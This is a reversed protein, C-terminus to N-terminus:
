RKVFESVFAEVFAEGVTGEGLEGHEMQAICKRVKARIEDLEAQQRELDDEFLRPATLASNRTKQNTSMGKYLM